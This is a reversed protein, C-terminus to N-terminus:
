WVQMHRRRFALVDAHNLRDADTVRERWTKDWVACEAFDEFAFRLEGVAGADDFAVNDTHTPSDTREVVFHVDAVFLGFNGLVTGFAANMPLWDKAFISWFSPPSGPHIEADADGTEGGDGVRWGRVVGVPVFVGAAMAVFPEAFAFCDPLSERWGEVLEEGAVFFGLHVHRQAIQKGRLEFVFNAHVAATHTEKGHTM